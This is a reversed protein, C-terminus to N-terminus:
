IETEQKEKREERQKEKKEIQRNTKKLEKGFKM